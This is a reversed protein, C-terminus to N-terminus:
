VREPCRQHAEELCMTYRKIIYCCSYVTKNDKAQVNYSDSFATFLSMGAGLPGQRSFAQMEKSVALQKYKICSVYLLFYGANASVM